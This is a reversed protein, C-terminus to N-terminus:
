YQEKVVIFNGIIKAKFKAPELISSKDELSIISKIVTTLIIIVLSKDFYYKFDAIIVIIKIAAYCNELLHKVFSPSNLNLCATKEPFDQLAIAPFYNLLHIKTTPAIFYNTESHPTFNNAKANNSNLPKPRLNSSTFNAFNM